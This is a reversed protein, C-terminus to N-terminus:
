TSVGPPGDRSEHRCDRRRRCAQRSVLLRWGIVTLGAAFILWPVLVLLDAATVKAEEGTMVGTEYADALV